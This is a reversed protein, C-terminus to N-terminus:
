NEFVAIHTAWAAFLWVLLIITLGWLSMPKTKGQRASVVCPGRRKHM